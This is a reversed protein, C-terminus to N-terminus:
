RVATWDYFRICYYIAVSDDTDTEVELDVQVAEERLQAARESLEIVRALRERVESRLKTVESEATPQSPDERKSRM